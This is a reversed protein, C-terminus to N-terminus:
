HASVIAEAKGWPLSTNGTICDAIGV